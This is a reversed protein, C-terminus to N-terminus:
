RRDISGVALARAEEVVRRRVVERPEPHMREVEKFLAVLLTDVRVHLIEGTDPMVVDIAFSSM